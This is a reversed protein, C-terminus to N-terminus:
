EVIITGTMGLSRHPLCYYPFTGTNNFKVEFTEGMGATQWQTWESHGDPTVTHFTSTTNIWRVTTGVAIHLEPKSFEFNRIEIEVVNDAGDPGTMDQHESCASIIMLTAGALLILGRRTPHLNPIPVRINM